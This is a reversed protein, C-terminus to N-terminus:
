LIKKKRRRCKGVRCIEQNGPHQNGYKLNGDYKGGRKKKKSTCIYNLDRGNDKEGREVLPSVWFWVFLFTDSHHSIGRRLLSVVDLGSGHWRKRFNVGPGRGEGEGPPHAAISVPPGTVETVGREAFIKFLPLVGIKKKKKKKKWRLQEGFPFVYSRVSFFSPPFFKQIM